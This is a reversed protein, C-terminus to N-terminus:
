SRTMRSACISTTTSVDKLRSTSDFYEPHEDFYDEARCLAFLSHGYQWHYVRGGYAPDDPCNFGNFGNRACWAPDDVGELIFNRYEFAPKKREDIAGLDIVDRKPVHCCDPTFWRCGLHDRLLGYVGYLVGRPSGGTIVLRNDSTQLHYEETGLETDVNLVVEQGTSTGSDRVSLELGAIERMHDSLERAATQLTADADAPLVIRCEDKNSGTIKM